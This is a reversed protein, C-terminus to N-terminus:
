RLSRKSARPSQRGSRFLPSAVPLLGLPPRRTVLPESRTPAPSHRSLFVPHLTNPTPHLFLAFSPLRESASREPTQNSHLDTQIVFLPSGSIKASLLSGIRRSPRHTPPIRLM